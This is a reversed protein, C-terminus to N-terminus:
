FQKVQLINPLILLILTCFTGLECFSLGEPYISIHKIFEWKAHILGKKNVSLMQAKNLICFAFTYQYTFLVVCPTTNDLILKYKFLYSKKTVWPCTTRIKSVFAINLKIIMFGSLSNSNIPIVQSRIVHIHTIGIKKNLYIEHCTNQCYISVRGNGSQCRSSLIDRLSALWMNRFLTSKIHIYVNKCHWVDRYTLKYCSSIKFFTRSHCLTQGFTFFRHKLKM